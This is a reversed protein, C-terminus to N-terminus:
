VTGGGTHHYCVLAIFARIHQVVAFFFQGPHWITSVNQPGNNHNLLALLDLGGGFIFPTEKMDLVQVPAAPVPLPAAQSAAMPLLSASAAVACAAIGVKTRTAISTM